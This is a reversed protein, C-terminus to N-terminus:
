TRGSMERRTISVISYFQNQRIFIKSQVSQVLCKHDCLSFYMLITKNPLIQNHDVQSLILHIITNLTYM